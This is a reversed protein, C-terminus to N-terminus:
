VKANGEAPKRLNYITERLRRKVYGVSEKSLWVELEPIISPDELYAISFASEARVMFEEADKMSLLAKSAEPNGKGLKGVLYTAAM